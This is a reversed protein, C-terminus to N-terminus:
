NGSQFKRDSSVSEYADMICAGLDTDATKWPCGVTACLKKPYISIRKWLYAINNVAYKSSAQFNGATAATTITIIAGPRPHDPASAQPTSLTISNTTTAVIVKTATGAITITGTSM